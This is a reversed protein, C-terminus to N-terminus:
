SRPAQAFAELRRYLTSRSVGLMRAARAKKGGARELAQAVQEPTLETPGSGQPEAPADVKRTSALGQDPDPLHGPMLRSGRCLICAHEVAHRLERVNGPWHHRLVREMFGPDIDRIDKGMSEAFEDVFHQVLLPVDEARERLPPLQINVVNLRYYLDERFAGSRVKDALDANTAAVLRVDARRTRNDGVREFERSEMARLLKLQILSSIDGIEDLFLTGGEAAEFRGQKDRIAGSFAGRVHGFLESELLNESLASCNVKVLPGKSRPGTYHLCEAVLEKGTGSPGTILVLSDVQALQEILSYVKQMVHSKGKLRGMGTRGRMASLEQELRELRTVDRVVLVAGSFGGSAGKLPAGSMELVRTTRGCHDCSAKIGGVPTQSELTQRLVDVWPCDKRLGEDVRDGPSLGAAEPCVAGPDRNCELLRLGPDVSLVIDPISNLLAAKESQSRRLAERAEVLETIDTIVAVVAELRLRGEAKPVLMNLVYHFPNGQADRGSGELSIRQRGEWLGALEEAFVARTEDKLINLLCGVLADPDTVGLLRLAAKNVRVVRVLGAAEDLAEPHEALHQRLDTVGQDRLQRFWVGLASFDEEWVSVPSHDFLNRYQLASRRAAAEGVEFARELQAELEEIRLSLAAADKDPGTM